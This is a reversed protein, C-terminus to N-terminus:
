EKSGAATYLKWDDAYKASLKTEQYGTVIDASKFNMHHHLLPADVYDAWTDGIEDFREFHNPVLVDRYTLIATQPDWHIGGNDLIHEVFAEWNALSNETLNITGKPSSPLIGTTQYIKSFCSFASRLRDLPERIWAIRTPIELAKKHTLKKANRFQHELSSSACKPIAAVAVDEQVLYWTFYNM